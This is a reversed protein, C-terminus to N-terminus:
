PTILFGGAVSSYRGRYELPIAQWIEFPCWYSPGGHTVSFTDKCAGKYYKNIPYGINGVTMNYTKFAATAPFSSSVVTSPNLVYSATPPLPPTEEEGLVSGTGPLEASWVSIDTIGYGGPAQSASVTVVIVDGPHYIVSTSSPSSTSVTPLHEWDDAHAIRTALGV